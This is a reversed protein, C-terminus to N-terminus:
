EEVEEDDSDHVYLVTPMAPVYIEPHETQLAIAGAWDAVERRQEQDWASVDVLEVGQVDAIELLALVQERTLEGPFPDVIPALAEGSGDGTIEDATVTPSPPALHGGGDGDGDADTGGAGPFKGRTEPDVELALEHQQKEGRLEGMRQLYAEPSALVVVVPRGAHDSLAHRHESSGALSLTGKVGKPTFAVKDLTASANPFQAALMVEFGLSVAYVISEELRRLLLEQEHEPLDVFVRKQGMLEAHVARLIALGVDNPNKTPPPAPAPEPEQNM